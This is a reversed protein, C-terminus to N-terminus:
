NRVLLLAIYVAVAATAAYLFYEFFMGAAGIGFALATLRPDERRRFAIAAGLVAATGGIAAVARGLPVDMVTWGGYAQASFTAALVCLLGFFFSPLSWTADPLPPKPPTAGDSGSSNTSPTKSM